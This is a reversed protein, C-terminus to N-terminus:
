NGRLRLAVIKRLEELSRCEGMPKGFHAMRHCTPCLPRCDKIADTKRVGEAIPDLHHIEILGDFEIGFEAGLDVDCVKCIPKYHDLCRKRVSPSRVSNSGMMREGESILLRDISSTVPKNAASIAGSIFDAVKNTEFDSPRQFLGYFYGNWSPYMEQAIKNFNRAATSSTVGTDGVDRRTFFVEPRLIAPVIAVLDDIAKATHGDFGVWLTPEQLWHDIYLSIDAHPRKLTTWRWKWGRADTRELESQVDPSTPLQPLAKELQRVCHQLITVSESKSIQPQKVM